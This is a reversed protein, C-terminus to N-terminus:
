WYWTSIDQPIRIVSPATDLGGASAWHIAGETRNSSKVSTSEASTRQVRDNLFEMLYWLFPHRKSVVINYAISFLVQFPGIVKKGPDQLFADFLDKKRLCGDKEPFVTFKNPKSGPGSQLNDKRAQLGHIWFGKLSVSLTYVQLTKLLTSVFFQDCPDALLSDDKMAGKHQSTIIIIARHKM